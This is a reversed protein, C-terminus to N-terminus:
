IFRHMDTCNGQAKLRHYDLTRLVKHTASRMMNSERVKKLVELNEKQPHSLDKGKRRISLKERREIPQGPLDRLLCRQSQMLCIQGLFITENQRDKVKRLTRSLTRKHSMQDTIRMMMAGPCGTGMIQTMTMKFMSIGIRLYSVIEYIQQCLCKQLLWKQREMQKQLPNSKMLLTRYFIQQVKHKWKRCKLRLPVEVLQGVKLQNLNSVGVLCMSLSGLVIHLVTHKLCLHYFMQFILKM